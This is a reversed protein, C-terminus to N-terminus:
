MMFVFAISFRIILWKDYIGTYQSIPIGVISVDGSLRFSRFTTSSGGASHEVDWEKLEQGTKIYRILIM